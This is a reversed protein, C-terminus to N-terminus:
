ARMISFTHVFRMMNPTVSLILPLFISLFKGLVQEFLILIAEVIHLNKFFVRPIM